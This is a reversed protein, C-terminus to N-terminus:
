MTHDLVKMGNIDRLLEPFCLNVNWGEMEVVKQALIKSNRNSHM